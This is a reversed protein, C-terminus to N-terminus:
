PTDAVKYVLKTGSVNGEKLQQMGDFCGKLGEGGVKPPHVSVKKEAFLKTSLDWFKKGFEFDEPKAPIQMGGAFTFAEGM